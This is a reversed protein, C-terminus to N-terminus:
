KLRFFDERSIPKSHRGAIQQGERYLQEFVEEAKKWASSEDMPPDNWRKIVRVVERQYLQNYTVWPISHRSSTADRDLFHADWEAVVDPDVIRLYFGTLIEYNKDTPSLTHQCHTIARLRKDRESIVVGRRCTLTLRSKVFELVAGERGFDAETVEFNPMQLARALIEIAAAKIVKKGREQCNRFLGLATGYRDWEYFRKLETQDNLVGETFYRLRAAAKTTGPPGFRRPDYESPVILGSTTSFIFIAQSDNHYLLWASDYLQSSDWPEIPSPPEIYGRLDQYAHRAKLLLRGADKGLGQWIERSRQLIRNGWQSTEQPLVYGVRMILKPLLSASAFEVADTGRVKRIVGTAQFRQLEEIDKTSASIAIKQRSVFKKLAAPTPDEIRGRKAQSRAFEERADELRTWYDASRLTECVQEILHLLINKEKQELIEAAACDDILKSVSDPITSM